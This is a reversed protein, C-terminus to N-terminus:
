RNEGPSRSGTESVTRKKNSDALLTFPLILLVLMLGPLIILRPADFLHVRGADILQGLTPRRPDVGLGLFNLSSEVLIVSAMGAAAQVVIQPWLLPLLHRSAIRWNSANYARAAQVFDQQKLTLVEARVLRAYVVWGNATLALILNPIGQGLFAMLALALLFGPFALLVDGSRMILGDITGGALGATMGLATGLLATMAVVMAAVVLSLTAGSALCSLFDRGLEDTGLIFAASPPQLRQRLQVTTTLDAVLHITLLGVLTSALLLLALKVSRNM